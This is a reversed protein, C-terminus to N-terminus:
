LALEIHSIESFGAKKMWSQYDRTSYVMGEGTAIALFYPSALAAYLPGTEDAALVTNLVVVSGDKRIAQCCKTLLAVNKEESYINLMHALVYCDAAPLPDTLFNGAVA